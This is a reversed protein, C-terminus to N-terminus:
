ILLILKYIFVGTPFVIFFGVLVAALAYAAIALPTEIAKYVKNFKKFILWVAASIIIMALIGLIIFKIYPSRYTIEVKNEGEDLEVVIFNADNKILNRNKGNVKVNYGDISVYGVYLKDGKEANIVEPFIIKNKGLTFEVKNDDLYNKLKQIDSVTMASVHFYPKLDDAYLKEGDKRRLTISRTSSSDSYSGFSYDYLEYVNDGSIRELELEKPLTHWYWYDSSKPATYTIKM